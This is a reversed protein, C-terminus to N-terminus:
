LRLHAAAHAHGLEELRWVCFSSIKRWTHLLIMRTCQKDAFSVCHHDAELDRPLSMVDHPIEQCAPPRELDIHLELHRISCQVELYTAVSHRSSIKANSIVCTHKSYRYTVIIIHKNGIPIKLLPGFIIKAVFCLRSCLFHELKRKQNMKSGHLACSCSAKVTKHINNTLHM